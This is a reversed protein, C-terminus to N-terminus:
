PESNDGSELPMRHGKVCSRGTGNRQHELASFLCLVAKGEARM